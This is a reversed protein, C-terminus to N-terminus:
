NGPKDEIKLDPNHVKAAQVAGARDGEHAKTMAKEGYVQKGHDLAQKTAEQQAGPLKHGQSVLDMTMRDKMAEFRGGKLPQTSKGKYTGDKAKGVEQGDHLGVSLKAKASAVYAPDPKGPSHHSGDDGELVKGDVKKEFKGDGLKAGKAAGEMGLKTISADM